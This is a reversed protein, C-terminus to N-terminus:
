KQSLSDSQLIQYKRTVDCSIICDNMVSEAFEGHKVMSVIGKRM